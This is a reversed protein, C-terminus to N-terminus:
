SSSPVSGATDRQSMEVLERLRRAIDPTLAEPQLRWRWNGRPSAPLNMRARSGLGLVDQLPVIALDAPSRYASRIMAWHVDAPACGLYDLIRTRENDAQRGNQGGDQTGVRRSLEAFWGVTTDTDHTSTFVVSARPYNEPLHYRAGAGKGFASQLVRMGRFGFRDRLEVAARTVSGLDEAIIPLPGLASTLASLLEVGPSKRWRGAKATRNRAPVSWHRIFGLFHDVRMADFLDLTRKFRAIWWAFGTEIHRTWRYLPHGWLQGQPCFGDPPVGSVSTSKGRANLQFLDPNAWVDASDHAIYIPVDGIVGVGRRRCYARLAGWQKDFQYQVFCHFAVTDDARERNRQMDTQKRSRAEAPWDVWSQGRHVDRTTQFLAFDELWYRQERCFQEFSRGQHLRLRRFTQFARRLRVQRYATVAGCSVSGSQLARVPELDVATLLGDDRLRDLSVLM